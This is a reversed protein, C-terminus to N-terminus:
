QMLEKNYNIYKTDLRYVRKHTNMYFLGFFTVAIILLLLIATVICTRKVWHASRLAKRREPEEMAMYYADAFEGPTGFYNTLDELTGGPHTDLYETLDNALGATQKRRISFPCNQKVQRLYRTIIKQQTM